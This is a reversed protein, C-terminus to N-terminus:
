HLCAPLRAELGPQRFLDRQFRDLDLLGARALPRRYLLAPLVNGKGHTEVAKM